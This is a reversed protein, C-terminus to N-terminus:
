KFNLFQLCDKFESMFPINIPSDGILKSLGRSVAKSIFHPLSAKMKLFAEDCIIKFEEKQSPTLGKKKQLLVEHELKMLECILQCTINNECFSDLIKRLQVLLDHQRLEGYLFAEHLDSLKHTLKEEEEKEMLPGQTLSLKGIQMYISFLHLIEARIPEIFNLCFYESYYNFAEDYLRRGPNLSSSQLSSFESYELSM